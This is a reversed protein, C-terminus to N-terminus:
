NQQDSEKKNIEINKWSIFVSKKSLKYTDIHLARTKKEVYDICEEIKYDPCRFIIEPVDFILDTLEYSNAMNIKSLLSNFVKKYQLATQKQKKERSNILKEISFDVKKINQIEKEREKINFLSKIDLPKSKESNASTPFLNNINIRDM